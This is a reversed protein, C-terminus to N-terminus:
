GIVVCHWATEEFIWVQWAKLSQYFWWCIASWYQVEIMGNIVQERIFHFKTDIHKSRGHSIPNKALSIAPKNDINLTLPKVVECRLREDSFGVVNSSL